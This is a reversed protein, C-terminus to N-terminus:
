RNNDSGRDVELTIIDSPLAFHTVEVVEDGSEDNWGSGVPATESDTANSFIACDPCVGNLLVSYREEDKLLCFDGDYAEDPWKRWKTTTTLTM